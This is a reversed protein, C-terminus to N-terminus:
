PYDEMLPQSTDLAAERPSRVKGDLPLSCRTSHTHAPGGMWGLALVENTFLRGFDELRVDAYLVMMLCAGMQMLFRLAASLKLRDDAIGTITLLLGGVGLAAVLRDFPMTWFIAAALTIFVALGGTVPTVSEHVKRASPLDVLGAKGALPILLLAILATALATVPLIWWTQNAALPM